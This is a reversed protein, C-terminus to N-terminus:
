FSLFLIKELDDAITARAERMKRSCMGSDLTTRLRKGRSQNLAQRQPLSSLSSSSPFIKLSYFIKVRNKNVNKSKKRVVCVNNEEADSEGAHM